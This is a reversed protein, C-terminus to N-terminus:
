VEWSARPQEQAIPELEQLDLRHCLVRFREAPNGWLEIRSLNNFGALAAPGNDYFSHILWTSGNLVDLVAGRDIRSHTQRSIVIPIPSVIGSAPEATANNSTLHPLFM